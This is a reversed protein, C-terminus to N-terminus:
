DKVRYFNKFKRQYCGLNKKLEHILKSTAKLKLGLIQNVVNIYEYANIM